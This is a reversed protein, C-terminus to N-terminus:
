FALILLICMLKFLFDMVIGFHVQQKAVGGGGAGANSMSKQTRNTRNSTSAKENEM